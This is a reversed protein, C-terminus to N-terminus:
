RGATTRDFWSLVLPLSRSASPFHGVDGVNIVPARVGRAALSRQCSVSNTFLVDRDAAGAYFRVPMRPRWSCPEDNAALVRRLTGTPHALRALFGDTFLGAPSDPLAAFIDEERHSGDFLQEVQRDYPARFVEAPSRYIPHVRNWATILYGLYFAASRGDLRGDLTAPLEEHRIDLPGSIPALASARFSGGEGRQLAEGVQMTAVGGQSFGSVLVRHDLRKGARGAFTRAAHLADISATVTPEALLYPHHGPGVGLGLYDPAVTAYGAAAFQIAAARDFDDSMSGTYGRYARTGHLWAVTPLTRAGTSPLAILASATTSRGTVGPTRYVIRFLDVERRVQVPDIEYGTLYDAAQERTLHGLHDSSVLAGRPGTRAQTAAVPTAAVAIPATILLSSTLAVAAILTRIM